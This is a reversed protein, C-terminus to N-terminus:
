AKQLHYHSRYPEESIAIVPYGKLLWLLGTADYRSLRQYSPHPNAPPEHLGFLEEVTWGLAHAQEGWQMLFGRADAICEQWRLPEICFPCKRELNALAEAFDSRLSEIPQLLKVISAKHRALADLV